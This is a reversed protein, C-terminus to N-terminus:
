IYDVQVFIKYIIRYVFLILIQKSHVHELCFVYVLLHTEYLTNSTDLNKKYNNNKLRSTISM